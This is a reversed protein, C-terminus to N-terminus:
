GMITCNGGISKAKYLAQDLKKFADAFGENAQIEAVTCCVTIARQSENAPKAAVSKRINEAMIYASSALTDQCLLIFEDGEWRCLVHNERSNDAIDTAVQQLIQDSQKLGVNDKVRKFQDVSFLVLSIPDGDHRANLADEAVRTFGFRNLAGTLPDTKSLYAYEDTKSRLQENYKALEAARRSIKLAHKYHHSWRWLAFVFVGGVWLSIILLYWQEASVWDGVFEIKRVTMKHMGFPPNAFDLGINVVNDFMPKAANRPVDYRDVWWDAVSFENLDVEIESVLDTANIQVYNFKAADIDEGYQTERDFNRLYFRIKKAPGEYSLWLNIKSFRSLDLGKEHNGTTLLSFGCFPFSIGESLHCKWSFISMDLWTTSSNGGSQKDSYLHIDEPPVGLASYTRVPLLHHAWILALTLIPAVVLVSLFRKNKM